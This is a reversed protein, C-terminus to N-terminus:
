EGIRNAPDTFLEEIADPDSLNAPWVGELGDEDKGSFGPMPPVEGLKGQMARVFSDVIQDGLAATASTPDLGFV